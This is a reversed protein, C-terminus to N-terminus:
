RTLLLKHKVLKLSFLSRSSLFTWEFSFTVMLFPFASFRQKPVKKKEQLIHSFYNLSKYFEIHSSASAATTVAYPTIFPISLPHGYCKDTFSKLTIGNLCGSSM